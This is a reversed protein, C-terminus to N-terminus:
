AQVRLRHVIEAELEHRADPRVPDGSREFALAPCFPFRALAEGRGLLADNAARAVQAAEKRRPSAHWMEVLPVERVNGLSTKKWQLCPYVNGEPDVAVTLRGLGCNMGGAERESVPLRGLAAVRRYMRELGEASARYALPGKDGDDRPTMNGDV